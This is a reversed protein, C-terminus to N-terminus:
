EFIGTPINGYGFDNTGGLVVIIDADRDMSLARHCFDIRVPPEDGESMQYVYRAGSVGYARAASLGYLRGLVQSYSNEFRSAGVGFTISDGLFNIKKGKLEM